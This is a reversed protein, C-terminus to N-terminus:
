TDSRRELLRRLATALMALDNQPKKFVHEKRIGIAQIAPPPDYGASGTYILFAMAPHLRHAQEIFANGDMGPLRIDVIAADPLNDILKALGEEGSGVDIVAFGEDELYARLSRRISVEDDVVLIRCAPLSM